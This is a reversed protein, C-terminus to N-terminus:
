ALLHLIAFLLPLTFAAALSPIFVAVSALAADGGYNEAYMSVTPACPTASILVAIALWHLYAKMTHLCFSIPADNLLDLLLRHSVASRECWRVYPETYPPKM